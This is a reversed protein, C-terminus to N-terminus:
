PTVRDRSPRLRPHPGHMMENLAAGAPVMPFVNDEPPVRFDVLFPGENEFAAHLAPGADDCSEVTVGDIGFSRAIRAFDMLPLETYSYRREYFLEQWQRVMGLFMNNMIFIKVPINYQRVTALEQINMQIGGDGSICIVASDPCAFAAGIAAPLGFGMTGLGGSTILQRPATFCFHRAAWMQHQGVDTVIVTDRDSLDSIRSIISWPHILGDHEATTGTKKKQWGAIKSHWADHSGNRHLRELLDVLVNRVDGVVPLDAHRNKGIEAPDIDVHIVEARPAFAELRGTVRDDFRAGLAILLDCEMVAHNAQVTGHMGIMGLNLPHDGPICGIGMLTTTVPIMMQEALRVVERSAGAAIVGGGAYIVPQEARAIMEAMRAAQRPHGDLIPRYGHLIVPPRPQEFPAFEVSVDKPIDILVPGKRGSGAILFAEDVTRALEGTNKVLYNHKTVPKTMGTIDAEQFADRGILSTPVQGTIAVLPSSDMYATAIGTILNCAGPGSTAICVGTRGSARAYGDAAHAAAQEHRVLIHRLPSSYLEDYIPLVTAGPYGFLTEVEQRILSGVLIAAGSKM